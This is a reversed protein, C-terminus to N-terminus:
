HELIAVASLPAATANVRQNTTTGQRGPRVLYNGFYATFLDAVREHGPYDLVIVVRAGYRRLEGDFVSRCDVTM